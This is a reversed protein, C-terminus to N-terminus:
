IEGSIECILSGKPIREKAMLGWMKKPGKKIRCIVTLKEGTLPLNNRLLSNRCKYYNCLCKNSCEYILLTYDFNDVL